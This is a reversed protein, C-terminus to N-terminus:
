EATLRHDSAIAQKRSGVYQLHMIFFWDLFQSTPQALIDELHMTPYRVPRLDFLSHVLEQILKRMASDSQETIHPQHTLPFEGGHDVGRSRM